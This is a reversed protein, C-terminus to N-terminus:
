TMLFTIHEIKLILKNSIQWKRTQCIVTKTSPNINVVGTNTKKLYWHFKIFASSIVISITLFLTFLVISLTCSSCVYDNLAVNDIM